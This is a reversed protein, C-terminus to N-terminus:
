LSDLHKKASKATKYEKGKEAVLREIRKWEKSSYAPKEIIECPSLVVGHETVKFMVTSGPELRLIERINLPITVQGKSTVKATESYTSTDRM